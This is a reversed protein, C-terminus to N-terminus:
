CGTACTPNGPMLQAEITKDAPVCTSIEEDNGFWGRRTMTMTFGEYEEDDRDVGSCTCSEDSCAEPCTGGCCGCSDDTSMVMATGTNGDFTAPVCITRTKDEEMPHQICVRIGSNEEPEVGEEDWPRPRPTCTVVADASCILEETPEPPTGGGFPGGPGGRMGGPGGGPFLFRDGASCEGCKDQASMVMAVGGTAPLCITRSKTEDMPHQICVQIGSNEEPDEADGPRKRPTCTVFSDSCDLEVTPEPPPGSPRLFGGPKGGGSGGFLFREDDFDFMDSAQALSTVFSSALLPLFFKMTKTKLRSQIPLKQFNHAFYSIPIPISCDELLTNQFARLVISSDFLDLRAISTGEFKTSSRQTRKIRAHHHHQAQNPRLVTSCSHLAVPLMLCVFQFMVRM